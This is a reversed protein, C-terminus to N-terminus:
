LLADLFIDGNTGRFKGNLSNKLPLPPKALQRHLKMVPSSLPTSKYVDNNINIPSFSELPKANLGIKSDISENQMSLLKKKNNILQEISLFLNSVSLSRLIIGNTITEPLGGRNSIIVACGRSAAELSTRGFPEEWRSCAVAISSKAFTELVKKHSQFGLNDLNKHEFFLKERQEDGIVIAKWQPYKDLIRIIAKGFIDYGKSINLKGVFTIIKQKQSFNIKTKNISQRIVILKESKYYFSSLNKLFQKKSWESNFIIKSCVNLLHIRESTNKSGSMTIPDNHFYLVIKTNLKTLINVYIPRNHIEIIDPIKKKQLKYFSNVYDKTQSRFFSKELAINIYNKSLKKKFNTSGYIVVDNKYKSYINTSNVFLSVAGPYTPSYNEKYPLLVSIRM